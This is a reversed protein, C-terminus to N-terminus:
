SPEPMLLGVVTRVAGLPGKQKLLKAFSEPVKLLSKRDDSEQGQIPILLYGNRVETHTPPPYKCSKPLRVSATIASDAEGTWDFKLRWEIRLEVKGNSLEMATRGMHPLLDRRTWKQKKSEEEEHGDLPVENDDDDEAIVQRRKRKKKKQLSKARAEPTGLEHEVACWFRSRQVSVEVWRSMAWCVLGIDKTLTEKHTLREKLFTGLEKQACLPLKEIDVSSISLLTTDVIMSLRATFLGSFHSATIMHLQSISQTDQTPEDSSPKTPQSKSPLFTIKSTYTLPSFAQLYPLPDDVEIPLHSPIPKDFVPLTKSVRKRRSSFPLFSGISKFASNQTANAKPAPEPLTSRVLLSLLEESNPPASPRSGKSEYQMQLRKNEQNALAVDAQLQQLEKLLGDRAKKKAAHPDEPILFRASKRRQPKEPQPKQPLLEFNFNLKSEKRPEPVSQLQSSVLSSRVQRALDKNRRARSNLTDNTGEPLSIALQNSVPSQRSIPPSDLEEDSSERSRATEYPSQPSSNGSAIPQESPQPSDPELITSEAAEPAMVEQSAPSSNGHENQVLPYASSRDPSPPSPKPTTSIEPQEAEQLDPDKTTPLKDTAIPSRRLGRKQFPNFDTKETEQPELEQSQVEQSALPSRRLGTKKFPNLIAQFDQGVGTDEGASNPGKPTKKIPSRSMRRPKGSMRSGISIRPKSQAGVATARDEKTNDNEVTTSGLSTTAERGSTGDQKESPNEHGLAKAFANNLNRAPSGSRSRVSSPPKLLQPNYRAISAKTPSAFSPRHPLTKTTDKPIPIRSPTVTADVPISTTPSLKRRKSPSSEM